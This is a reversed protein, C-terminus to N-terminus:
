VFLHCTTDDVFNVTRINQNEFLHIDNLYIMSLPPGLMSGQPVGAVIEEVDSLM